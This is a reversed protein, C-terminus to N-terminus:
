LLFYLLFNFCLLLIYIDLNSCFPTEPILEIDLSQFALYNFHKPYPIGFPRLITM